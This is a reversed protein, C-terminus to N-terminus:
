LLLNEYLERIKGYSIYKNKNDDFQLTYITKNIYSNHNNINLISEDYEM